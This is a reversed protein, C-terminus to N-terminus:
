PSAAPAATPEALMRRLPGIRPDNPDIQELKDLHHRAEMDARADHTLVVLNYRADFNRPDLRLVRLYGERADRYRNRHHAILALDYVAAANDPDLALLAQFREAARDLDGAQVLLFGALLHAPAGRGAEAARTALAIAAARDRRAQAVAAKAYLAHPDAPDGALVGDALASAEDLRGNGALAEARLGLARSGAKCSTEAADVEGLAAAHLGDDLLRVVLGAV